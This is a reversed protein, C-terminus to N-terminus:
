ENEKKEDFRGLVFAIVGGGIGSMVTSIAVNAAIGVGTNMHTTAYTILDFHLVVSLGIIAGFFAGRRFTKPGPVSALIFALLTAYVFDSLAIV